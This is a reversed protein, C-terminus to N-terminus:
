DTFCRIMKCFLRMKPEDWVLSDTDCIPVMFETINKLIKNVGSCEYDFNLKPSLNGMLVCIKHRSLTYIWFFQPVTQNKQDTQSFLKNCSLRVYAVSQLSPGIVTLLKAARKIQMGAHRAESKFISPLLCLKSLLSWVSCIGLILQFYYAM